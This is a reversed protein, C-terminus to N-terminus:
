ARAGESKSARQWVHEPVLDAFAVARDMAAEREDLRFGSPKWLCLVEGKLEWRTLGKTMLFEMMRPHVVDYAFRRDESRVWFRRSFADSEFNIDEFGVASALKHGIHEPEITLKPLPGPIGVLVVGRTHTSQNKGNQVTYRFQFCRVARGKYVGHLVDYARASRGPSMAELWRFRKALGENDHPEYTLGLREAFATLAKRNRASLWLALAVIAGAALFFMGFFVLGTPDMGSGAV